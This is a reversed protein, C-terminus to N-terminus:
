EINETATLEVVRQVYRGKSNKRYGHVFVRWGSELMV